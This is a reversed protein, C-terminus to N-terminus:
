PDLYWVLRVGATFYDRLKRTMEATTNSESLVEVALDPTLHPIPEPPLKRDPFHRWSLFCLDPARVQRPLIRLAADAGLVLGLDHEIVFTELFWGLVVALRSEFYGVTKEVLVGDVLECQPRDSRHARLVDEETATGPPPVLRIREAPVGLHTQLDAISWEMPFDFLPSSDSAITSMSIRM